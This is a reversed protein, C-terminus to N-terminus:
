YGSPGNTFKNMSKQILAKQTNYNNLKLKLKEKNLDAVKKLHQKKESNIKKKKETFEDYKELM